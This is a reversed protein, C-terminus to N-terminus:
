FLPYSFGYMWQLFVWNAEKDSALNEAFEDPWFHGYGFQIENGKPLKLRGVVDFERGVKDGSNGNKDRYAKSNLHWADKEEALWFQHYEAKFYLWDKPKVELNIQADKLNKWHFLNLRGYMKDRAGFAGDFTERKSDTPDSDGSAYSYEVSLRPKFGIQEFNYGMSVHYGYADIDDHAYDGDQKVFTFDVDFGEYNKKFIRAGVYYSDLDGYQGDESKYRDHKNAKTMAFPEFSIGLLRKPLEFHGYFGFSEFGHNHNLSCVDPDHVQTSGYYADVFGGDFKYALKGADWIWRGTNGWQGPGFIRKNGYAIVQRGLKISFPLVKKIELYTNYLEWRDKYPNHERDFQSNYFDSEELASDWIESDQMWVALHVIQNPYYDLGFRFRGLLFGDNSEGEAPEDGYYKANFNDQYEYRFRANAGFTLNQGSQNERKEEALSTGYDGHLLLITVGIILCVVRLEFRV